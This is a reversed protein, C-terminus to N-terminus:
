PAFQGKPVSIQAQPRVVSLVWMVASESGPCETHSPPAARLGSGEERERCIIQRARTIVTELEM